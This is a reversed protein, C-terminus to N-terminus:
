KRDNKVELNRISISDITEITRYNAFKELDSVDYFVKGGIKKYRPGKGLCRWVELTGKKQGIIDAANSTNVRKSM